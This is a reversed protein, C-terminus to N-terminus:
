TSTADELVAVTQRAVVLEENTPVTWVQVPSDATSICTEGSAAANRESNLQVGLFGLNSCVRRRVEPAREGIGGTFVLVDLGGLAVAYAGLYDRVAEVYVDLALQAGAHGRDAAAIIEAMDNSLGSVGLLGGHKAALELLLDFSQGTQARIVLLAYPDFDGIRNNQPVGAQPTMGFSNGISEGARIACLSSSGGLHCSVIRLDNRQLLDAVRTAIYRHSAGHFGYRQVGFKTKWEHPVAYTRRAEPVTRHFGTEFAAVLPTQPRAKQFARMAAIYAPNHAPAAHAFRQMEALVKDNVRIAAPLEGGHVAKFGVADFQLKPEDRELAALSWDIAAAQDEAAITTAVPAGGRSVQAVADPRGVGEVGGRALEREDHMDLLRFKFSTSGINVVLVQM